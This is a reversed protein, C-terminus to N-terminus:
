RVGRGGNYSQRSIVPAFFIYYRESVTLQAIGNNWAGGKHGVPNTVNTAAVAVGAAPWGAVNHNGTAADISGDGWTRTFTNNTGTTPNAVADGMLAVVCERINGTMDMVGYYTAGATQRTSSATAFIGARAPGTGGDGNTFAGGGYVARGSTFAETGNEAGTFTTGASITTNGWAYEGTVAASLGRCAKEYELETM